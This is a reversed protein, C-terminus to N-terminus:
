EDNGRLFASGLSLLKDRDLKPKCHKVYRKLLESSSMSLDVDLRVVSRTAKPLPVLQVGLAGAKRLRETYVEGAVPLEDYRVDIFNGNVEDLKDKDIQKQTLTIFRPRTLPVLEVSATETDYLLFGKQQGGDGRVHELPSGIYEQNTNRGIKQRQHYHGSFLYDFTTRRFLRDADLEEKVTYELASGVAAGRFGHHTIIIRHQGACNTAYDSEAEEIRSKFLLRDDCYSFGTIILEDSSDPAVVRWNRFGERRVASVLGAKALATVAHVSGSKDAHDHNGDVMLVSIGVHKMKALEEVVLTYARTYLVGRKHFLDGGFVITNIGHDQCYRRVDALVSVCDHLRSPLGDKRVTSFEKWDHVHLDSLLAIRM